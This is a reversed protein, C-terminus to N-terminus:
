LVHAIKDIEIFNPSGDSNLLNSANAEFLQQGLGAKSVAKFGVIYESGNKFIKINDNMKGKLVIKLAYHIKNIAITKLYPPYSDFYYALGNEIHVLCVEHNPNPEPIVIVPPCQKLHYRLESEGPVISEYLIDKAIAKDKVSQPIEAYFTGWNFGYPNPYDSEKVLGYKRVAEPPNDSFNGQHTTGSLKAIFRDSWNPEIGTQQKEQIELSNLTAFTTCAMTENPNAQKEATPIFPRWDGSQLKVEYPITGGVWLAKTGSGPIFGTNVKPVDNM